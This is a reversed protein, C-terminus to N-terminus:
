GMLLGALSDVVVPKNIDPILNYIKDIMESIGSRMSQTLQEIGDIMKSMRVCMSHTCNTANRFDSSSIRAPLTLHFTHKAYGEAVCIEKNKLALVGYNLRAIYAGDSVETLGQLQEIRPEKSALILSELQLILCITAM